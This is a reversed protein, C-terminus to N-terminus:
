RQWEVGAAALAGDVTPYGVMEIVKGARFSTIQARPPVAEGDQPPPQLIVVVRDGADLMDVVEPLPPRGPRDIFRLAQERNVCAGEATPDGFHWKVDEDLLERVMDLDGRRLADYGRRALEINNPTM